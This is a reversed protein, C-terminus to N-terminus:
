IAPVLDRQRGGITAALSASFAGILLSMFIWLLSHAAAKRAAGATQGAEAFVDSFRKSAQSATLGTRTTILNTMYTMDNPPIHGIRLANVFIAGAEGRRSASDASQPNASESRFLQDVFYGTPGAEELQSGNGPGAREALPSGNEGAMIAAASAMFVATFTLAVAWALFGHVTDRFYVEDSHIRTWKTRLRGALYGGLGATIIQTGVLWVLAGGDVVRSSTRSWPSVASLEFGAGLALLILWMAAVSFAGATIAAWSVGSSNSEEVNKGAGGPAIGIPIAESLPREM